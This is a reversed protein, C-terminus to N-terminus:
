TLKAQQEALLASYGLQRQKLLNMLHENTSNLRAQNATMENLEMTNVAVLKRKLDEIDDLIRFNAFQNPKNEDFNMTM